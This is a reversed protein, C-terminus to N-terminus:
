GRMGDSSRRWGRRRGLGRRVLGEYLREYAAVTARIDHEALVMARGREARAAVEPGGLRVERLAAAVAAADRPAVPWAHGIGVIEALGDVQTAVVPLGAAMAELVAIGLGEVLAPHVFADMGGLVRHVDLRAGLFRVRDAVGLAAAHARLAGEDPGAGILFLVGAELRAMAEIATRQGKREFLRAVQAVAFEDAGLGLEERVGALPATAAAGIAAADIGNTIVPADDPAAFSARVARSIYVHEDALPFCLRMAHRLWPALDADDRVTQETCVVAPARAARGVIEAVVTAYGIHAQVVDADLCLSYLRALAAPDFRHREGLLHVEAGADRMPQALADARGLGCVAVRYRNRDAHRLHALVFNEAGYPSLSNLVFLLRLRDGTV